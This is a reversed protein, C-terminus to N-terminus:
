FGFPMGDEAAATSGSLGGTLEGRSCDKMEWSKRGVGWSWLMQLGMASM